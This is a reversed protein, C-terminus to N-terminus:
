FPLLHHADPKYYGACTRSGCDPCPGTFGAPRSWSAPPGDMQEHARRERRSLVDAVLINRAAAKVLHAPIALGMLVAGAAKVPATLYTSAAEVAALYQDPAIHFTTDPTM